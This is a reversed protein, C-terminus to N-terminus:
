RPRQGLTWLVLRGVRGPKRERMAEKAESEHADTMPGGLRWTWRLGGGPRKVYNPVKPLPRRPKRRHKRSGM